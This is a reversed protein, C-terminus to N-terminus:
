QPDVVHANVLDFGVPTLGNVLFIGTSFSTGTPLNLDLLLANTLVIPPASTLPAPSPSIGGATVWFSQGNIAILWYWDLADTYTTPSIDLTFQTSGSTFVPGSAARRGNVKLAVTPTPSLEDAGLDVVAGPMADGNLIRGNGDLDVAPLSPAGNEGADIGPSGPKLRFDGASPQAFLPAASINGNAGTQDTCSGGYATGGGAFINNFRFVPPATPFGNGCQVATQGSGAVVINNVLEAQDDFGEALIEAAIPSVNEALTNNVLLPGRAGSPVLWYIGGGCGAHNRLILNGTITADSQNVLSIGGGKACPFLGSATNDTIVNREIIPAGAAFLSIGGGDASNLVNQTIVNSRIVAGAAGGISVGGGGIGGSCGSQVNGSITNGEVLPSGFSISVGVGTCARNNVILNNRVTPSANTIRIGGGNGFGPTDFGSRGNQLTFGELVSNPGEGAAFTVVTDAANADITTVLPGYLSRLTIRKGGFNVSEVYTGPCVLLTDGPDAAAIAAGITAFTPVAADCDAVGAMGDNDVVRTVQAQVTAASLCVSFTISALRACPVSRRPRM